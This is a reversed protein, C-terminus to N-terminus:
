RMARGFLVATVTTVFASAALLRVPIRIDTGQGCAPMSLRVGFATASFAAIPTGGQAAGVQVAGVVIAPDIVVNPVASVANAIADLILREPRFPRQPSAILVGTLGGIAIVAPVFPLFDLEEQPRSVGQSTAANMWRPTAVRVGGRRLVRARAPAGLLMDGETDEDGIIDLGGVMFDGM